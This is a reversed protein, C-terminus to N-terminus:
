ADGGRRGWFFDLLVFGGFFFGAILAMYGVISILLFITDLVEDGKRFVERL